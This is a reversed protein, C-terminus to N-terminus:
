GVSRMRFYESLEVLEVKKRFDVKRYYAAVLTWGLGMVQNSLETENVNFKILGDYTDDIVDAYILKGEKGEKMIYAEWSHVLLVKNDANPDVGYNEKDPLRMLFAECNSDTFFKRMGGDMKSEILIQCGYAFCQLLMDEHLLEVTKPRAHYKSVFMRDYIPDNEGPDYRNLV